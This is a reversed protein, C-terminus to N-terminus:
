GFTHNICYFVTHGLDRCEKWQFWSWLASGTLLVAVVVCKVIVSRNM